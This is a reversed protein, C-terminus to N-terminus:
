LAKTLPAATEVLFQPRLNPDSQSAHPPLAMSPNAGGEKAVAKRSSSAANPEPRAGAAGAQGKNDGVTGGKKKEDNAQMGQLFQTFENKVKDRDQWYKSVSRSCDDVKPLSPEM